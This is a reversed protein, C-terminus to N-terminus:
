AALDNDSAIIRCQELFCEELSGEESRLSDLWACGSLTLLALTLLLILCQKM